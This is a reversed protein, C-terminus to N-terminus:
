DYQIMLYIVGIFTLFCAGSLFLFVDVSHKSWFRPMIWKVVVFSVLIWFFYNVVFLALSEKPITDDGLPPQPYTFATLPFGGTAIPSFAYEPNGSSASPPPPKIPSYSFFLSIWLFILGTSVIIIIQQIVPHEKLKMKMYVLERGM